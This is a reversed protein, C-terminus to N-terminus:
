GRADRFRRIFVVRFTRGDRASSLRNVASVAVCSSAANSSVMEIAGQGVGGGHACGCHQVRRRFVNCSGCETLAPAHTYEGGNCTRCSPRTQVELVLRAKGCCLRRQYRLSSPRCTCRVFPRVCHGTAKHKTGWAPQLPFPPSSPVKAVKCSDRTGFFAARSCVVYESRAQSAAWRM